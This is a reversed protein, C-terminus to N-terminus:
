RPIIIEVIKGTHSKDNVMAISASKTNEEDGKITTQVGFIYNTGDAMQTALLGFPDVNIGVFTGYAKGFADLCEKSMDHGTHVDVVPGGIAPSGDILMEIRTLTFIGELENFIMLVINKTDPLTLVNQVALVAHDVGSVMKSGLYAVAEYSTGEIHLSDFATALDEPLGDIHINVEWQGLM